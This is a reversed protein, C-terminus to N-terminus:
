KIEAKERDVIVEVESGIAAKYQDDTWGLVLASRKAKVADDDMSIGIVQLDNFQQPTVYVRQSLEKIEKWFNHRRAGASLPLL